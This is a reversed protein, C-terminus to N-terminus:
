EAGATLPPGVFLAVYARGDEVVAIRRSGMEAPLTTGKVKTPFPAWGDLKVKLKGDETREVVRGDVPCGWHKGDVSASWVDAAEEGM